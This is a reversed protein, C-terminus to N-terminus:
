HPPIIEIYERQPLPGSILRTAEVQVPWRRGPDESSRPFKDLTSSKGPSSGKGTICLFIFIRPNEQLLGPLAPGLPRDRGNAVEIGNLPDQVTSEPLVYGYLIAPAAVQGKTDDAQECVAQELAGKHNGILIKFLHEGPSPAPGGKENGQM